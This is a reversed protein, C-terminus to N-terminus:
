IKLYHKLREVTIYRAGTGKYINKFRNWDGRILELLADADKTSSTKIAIICDTIVYTYNEPIVYIKIKPPNGVRPVLVAPGTIASFKNSVKNNRTILFRDQLNTTHIITYGSTCKKIDHVALKGRFVDKAYHQMLTISNTPLYKKKTEGHCFSIISVMPCCDRFYIHSYEKLVKIQYHNKLENWIADDKQSYLIGSPIIAYLVGSISLYNLAIILFNMATSVRYEKCNYSIHNVTSGPCTFPPNFLVLDFLTTSLFTKSRQIPDRFDCVDLFWSQKIAKLVTIADNDIDTGYFKAKKWRREAAFLLEGQGVCFDAITNINNHKVFQVLETALKSSTYYQDNVKM